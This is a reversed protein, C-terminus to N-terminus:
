LIYMIIIIQKSTFAKFTTKQKESFAIVGKM